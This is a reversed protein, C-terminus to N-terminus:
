GGIGVMFSTAEIQVWPGGNTQANSPAPGTALYILLAAASCKTFSMATVKKFPPLNECDPDPAASRFKERQGVEEARTAAPPTPARMVRRCALAVARLIKRQEEPLHGSTLTM